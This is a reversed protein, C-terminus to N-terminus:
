QPFIETLLAVTLDAVKIMNTIKERGEKNNLRKNKAFCNRIREGTKLYNLTTVINWRDMQGQNIQQTGHYLGTTDGM